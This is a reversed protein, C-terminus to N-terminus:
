RRVAVAVGLDVAEHVAGHVWVGRTSSGVPVSTSEDAYRAVTATVSDRQGRRGVIIHARVVGGAFVCGQHGESERWTVKLPKLPDGHRCGRSLGAAGVLLGVLALRV